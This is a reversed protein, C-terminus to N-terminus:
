CHFYSHFYESEYHNIIARESINCTLSFIFGALMKSGAVHIGCIIDCQQKDVFFRITIDGSIHCYAQTHKLISTITFHILM